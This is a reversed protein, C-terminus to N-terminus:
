SKVRSTHTESTGRINGGGGRIITNSQVIRRQTSVIRDVNKAHLVPCRCCVPPTRPPMPYRLSPLVPTRSSARGPLVLCTLVFCSLVLVAFVCFPRLILCGFFSFRFFHRLVRVHSLAVVVATTCFFLSPAFLLPSPFNAPSSVQLWFLPSPPLPCKYRERSLSISSTM